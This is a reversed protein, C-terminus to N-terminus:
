NDVESWGLLHAMKKKAKKWRDRYENRVDNRINSWCKAGKNDPTWKYKDENVGKGYLKNSAKGKPGEGKSRSPVRAGLAGVDGDESFDASLVSEDEESATVLWRDVINSAMKNM